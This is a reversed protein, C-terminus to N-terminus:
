RISKLGSRAIAGVVLPVTWPLARLVETKGGVKNTGSILCSAAGQAGLVSYHWRAKEGAWCAACTVTGAQMLVATAPLAKSRGLAAPTWSERHM